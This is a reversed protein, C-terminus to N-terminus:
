CLMALSFFLAESIDCIGLTCNSSPWLNTWLMAPLRELFTTALTGGPRVVWVMALPLYPWRGCPLSAPFPLRSSGGTINGSMDGPAAVWSTVHCRGQCHLQPPEPPEDLVLFAAGFVSPVKTECNPKDTPCWLRRAMHRLMCANPGTCVTLRACACACLCHTYTYM